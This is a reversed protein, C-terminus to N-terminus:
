LDSQWDSENTKKNDTKNTLGVVSKSRCYHFQGALGTALTERGVIGAQTSYCLLTRVVCARLRVLRPFEHSVSAPRFLVAAGSNQTKKFPPTFILISGKKNLSLWLASLSQAPSSALPRRSSYPVPPAPPM